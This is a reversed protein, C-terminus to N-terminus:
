GEYRLAEIPHKKAAKNAPYLGFILGIASSFGVALAVVDISINFSMLDGAVISVIQLIVWSLLLGFICGLVSIVLAEILFQMMISGRGAGIAKRIGIERTRETVSVLMINMIGIGGVLLSIAAIGGLLLTLAGTVTDMADAISSMNIISFADEDQDFRKMMSRNLVEETANINNTDTASVSFSTVHPQGAMRSQVTYPVYATLGSIMSSMISDDVELLGVVLFSRGNISMNEGIIDERGFLEIAVDYSLVVVYSSNDVDTTKLFRGSALDLGQIDYYAATTGYVTLSADTYAYKGTANLTGVPAVQGITDETDLKNLDNLYLPNGKSDRITVSLMDNGLKEIENTVSSAAGDVLSVMVVLAMVGIIIGLMTLFSRMKSSIIASWAMKISQLVM